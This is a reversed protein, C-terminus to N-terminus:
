GDGSCKQERASRLKESNASSLHVIHVACGTERSLRLLLDIAADEAIKPRSDLYDSYARPNLSSSRKYFEPLEAHVLLRAGMRSLEYMRQRLESKALYQFEDVGSPTLFCKFGFCGARFLTSNPLIILSLVGLIGRGGLMSKPCCRTKQRFAEVSTTAPISNLPMEILHNHWRGGGGTHSFLIRGM